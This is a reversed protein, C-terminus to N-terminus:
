KGVLWCSRLGALEVDVFVPEGAFLYAVWQSWKTNEKQSYSVISSWNCTSNKASTFRRLFCFSTGASSSIGSSHLSDSPSSASSFWWRPTRPVWLCSEEPQHLCFVRLPLKTQKSEPPKRIVMRMKHNPKKKRRQASRFRCMDKEPDYLSFCLLSKTSPNQSSSEQVPSLNMSFTRQQELNVGQSQCDSVDVLQSLHHLRHFWWDAVVGGLHLFFLRLDDDPTM